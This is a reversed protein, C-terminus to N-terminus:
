QRAPKNKQFSHKLQGYARDLLGKEDEDAPANAVATEGTRIQQIKRWLKGAGTETTNKSVVVIKQDAEQATQRAAVLVDPEAITVVLTRPATAVPATTTNEKDSVPTVAAIQRDAIKREILGNAPTTETAPKAKNRNNKSVIVAALAGAPKKTIATNQVEANGEAITKEVQVNPVVQQAIADQANRKASKVPRQARNAITQQADAVPENKNSSQVYWGLTGVLMLCAAAAITRQFTPTRWFVVNGPQTQQNMRAQLRAFGREDPPLSLNVLKRAFLEDVPPKKIPENM